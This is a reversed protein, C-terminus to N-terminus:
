LKLKKLLTSRKNIKNRLKNFQRELNEQVENFTKLVAIKFKRNNLDCNEM